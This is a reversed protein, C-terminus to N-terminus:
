GKRRKQPMKKRQKKITSRGEKSIVRKRRGIEEGEREKMFRNKKMRVYSIKSGFKLIFHLFIYFKNKIGERGKGERREWQVIIYLIYFYYRVIIFQVHFPLFSFLYIPSLFYPIASLSRLLPQPSMIPISNDLIVLLLSYILVMCVSYILVVLILVM